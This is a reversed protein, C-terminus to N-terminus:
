SKSPINKFNTTCTPPHHSHNGKFYGRLLMSKFVFLSCICIYIWTFNQRSCYVTWLNTRILDFRPFFPFLINFTSKKFLNLRLHTQLISCPRKTRRETMKRQVIRVCWDSQWALTQQNKTEDEFATDWIFIIDVTVCYSSYQM